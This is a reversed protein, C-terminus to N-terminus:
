DGITVGRARLPAFIREPDAAERTPRWLRISVHKLMDLEILEELDDDTTCSVHLDQLAIMHGLGELSSFNGELSTLAPANALWWTSSAEGSMSVEAHQLHPLYPARRTPTPTHVFRIAGRIMLTELASLGQLHRPNVWPGELTGYSPIILLQTIRQRLRQAHVSENPAISLLGLTIYLGTARRYRPHHISVTAPHAVNPYPRLQCPELLGDFLAPNPNLALGQLAQDISAIDTTKVRERVAAVDEKDSARLGTRQLPPVRDENGEM